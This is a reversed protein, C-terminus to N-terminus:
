RRRRKGLFVTPTPKPAGAGEPVIWLEMMAEERVGGDVLVVSGEAFKWEFTLQSFQWDPDYAFYKPPRRKGRYSIMYGRAGPEARLYYAFNDLIADVDCDNGVRLGSGRGYAYEEFKRAVKPAGPSQRAAVIFPPLLVAFLLSSMLLRPFRM